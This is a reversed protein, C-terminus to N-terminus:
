GSRSMATGCRRESPRRFAVASTWWRGSPPPVPRSCLASRGPCGASRTTSWCATGPRPRPASSTPSTATIGARRPTGSANRCYITPCQRRPSCSWSCRSGDRSHAHDGRHLHGARDGDGAHHLVSVAPLLVSRQDGFLDPQHCHSDCDVGGCIILMRRIDGASQWRGTFRITLAVVFILAALIAFPVSNDFYQHLVVDLVSHWSLSHIWAVQFSQGRAFLMLPTLAGVAVASSVAWWVIVSRQRRLLPTVVAYAPVLLVLYVNLLIALMLALSYLVWLWRRHRRVATVLLVTLWVAVAATLAYSRAEVAAWTVRPLIAFVLGACM